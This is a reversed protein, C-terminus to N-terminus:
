YGRMRMELALDQEEQYTTYLSTKKVKGESEMSCVTKIKLNDSTKKEKM